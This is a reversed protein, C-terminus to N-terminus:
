FNIKRKISILITDIIVDFVGPTYEDDISTIREFKDIQQTRTGESVLLLHSMLRPRHTDNSHFGNQTQVDNVNIELSSSLQTFALHPLDDSRGDNAYVRLDLNITGNCLGYSFSVKISNSDSSIFDKASKWFTQNWDVELIPYNQNYSGTKNIDDFFFLRSIQLGISNIPDSTFSIANSVDKRQILKTWNILLNTNPITKVILLTPPIGSMSGFVFHIMDKEGNSSIHVLNTTNKLKDCEEGCNPNLKYSIERCNIEIIIINLLVILVKVVISDM